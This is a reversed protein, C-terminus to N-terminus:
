LARVCVSGGASYIEAPQKASIGGRRDAEGASVRLAGQGPQAAAGDSVRAFGYKAHQELRAERPSAALGRGSKHARSGRAM